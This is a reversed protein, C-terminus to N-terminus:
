KALIKEAAVDVLVNKDLVVHSVDIRTATRISSLEKAHQQSFANLKTFAANLSRWQSMVDLNYPAFVTALPNNGPIHIIHGNLIGIGGGDDKVGESVWMYIAEQITKGLTPQQTPPVDYCVLYINNEQFTFGIQHGAPSVTSGDFLSIVSTLNGGMQADSKLTITKTAAAPVAANYTDVHYSGSWAAPPATSAIVVPLNTTEIQVDVDDDGTVVFSIDQPMAFTCVDIGQFTGPGTGGSQVYLFIVIANQAGAGGPVTIDGSKLPLGHADKLLTWSGNEIRKLIALLSFNRNDATTITPDITEPGSVIDLAGKINDHMDYLNKFRFKYM